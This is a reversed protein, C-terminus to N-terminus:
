FTRLEPAEKKGEYKRVERRRRRKEIGFGFGLRGQERKGRKV